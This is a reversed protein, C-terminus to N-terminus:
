NERGFQGDHYTVSGALWHGLVILVVGFARYFDVALNRVPRATDAEAMLRRFCPQPARRLPVRRPGDVRRACLSGMFGARRASKSTPRIPRPAIPMDTASAPAPLSSASDM